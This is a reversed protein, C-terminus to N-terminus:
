MVDELMSEINIHAIAERARDSIRAYSLGAIAAGGEADPYGIGFVWRHDGFTKCLDEIGGPVSYTHSLCLRLNAHRELLPYLLRNRGLRPANLLILNLQGFASLIVDLDDSTVKDYDVLLPIRRAQLIEYLHGSCWPLLSFGEAQPDIWCIRTGSKIMENILKGPEFDPASGDPTVMWAPLLLDEDKTEELVVGNGVIPGCEIAVRHRVVAQSIGLRNMQFLLDARDPQYGEPRVRPIGLIPDCAILKLDNMM